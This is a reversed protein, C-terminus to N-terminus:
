QSQPIAWVRVLLEEPVDGDFPYGDGTVLFKNDTSFALATVEADGLEIKHLLNGTEWDWLLISNDAAASALLSGQPSFAIANVVDTHGRM